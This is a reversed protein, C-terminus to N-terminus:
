AQLMPQGILISADGYSLFRFDNAIAFDYMKKWDGGVFASVLLLLTSQPQHFNTVIGSVVNFTYGPAILLQTDAIFDDEDRKDLYDLIHDFSDKLTLRPHRAEYPFWQPVTGQWDDIAILCGAHYLSELTRVSTTGVAIVPTDSAAIEHILSRNVRIFEQHMEHDGVLESKVPQFTGAGVHLTLERRKVGKKDLNEFVEPTFHLGATPAAVSGDIHSYITQYDTEDSKETGRNLYPPIPIEGAAQIIESFTVTDDTWSFLIKSANGERGIRTASLILSKGSVTVPMSLNGAKWRKSNGVFCLWSCNGTAAFNEQHEWPDVPELCFIEITSGNGNKQFRLRANIVRTNNYVLMSGEPILNPLEAFIRQEIQGDPYRVLLKCADRQQLPHRAIREDPLEYNYDAIKIDRVTAEKMPAFNSMKQSLKVDANLRKGFFNTDKCAIFFSISQHLCYKDTVIIIITAKRAIM